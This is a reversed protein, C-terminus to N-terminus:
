DRPSPSTYLLCTNLIVAGSEVHLRHAAAEDIGHVGSIQVYAASLGLRHQHDACFHQRADQIPAIAGSTYQEAVPCTRYHQPSRLRWADDGALQVGIAAM